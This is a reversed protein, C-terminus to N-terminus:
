RAGPQERPRRIFEAASDVILDLIRHVTSKDPHFGRAIAGKLARGMGVPTAQGAKDGDM